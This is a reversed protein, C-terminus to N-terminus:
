NIGNKVETKRLQQELKAKNVLGTDNCSKVMWVLYDLPVDCWKTNPHKKGWDLPQHRWDSNSSNEDEKLTHSQQPPLSSGNSVGGVSSLASPFEDSKVYKNGDYEGLFVDANFGLKSLGKTLADTAVSKIADNRFKIDSSIPIQGIKETLPDKYWVKATYIIWLEGNFNVERYNEDEVGWGSGMPGFLKTAEFLQSQADIATMKGAAKLYKSNSKSVPDWIRTNKNDM